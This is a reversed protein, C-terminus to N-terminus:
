DTIAWQHQGPPLNTVTVGSYHSVAPLAPGEYPHVKHIVILDHGDTLLIFVAAFPCENKQVYSNLCEVVRGSPAFQWHTMYLLLIVRECLTGYKHAKRKILRFWIWRAYEYVNLKGTRYAARGFSESRPNLEALELYEAVPCSIAFDLDQTDNQRLDSIGVGNGLPRRDNFANM